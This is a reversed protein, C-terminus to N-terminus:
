KHDTSMSRVAIKDKRAKLLSGRSTLLRGGRWAPVCGCKEKSLDVGLIRLSMQYSKKTILNHGVNERAGMQVWDAGTSDCCTPRHCPPHSRLWRSRGHQIQHQVDSGRQTSPVICELHRSLTISQDMVPVWCTGPSIRAPHRISQCPRHLTSSSFLLLVKQRPPGRAGFQCGSLWVPPM